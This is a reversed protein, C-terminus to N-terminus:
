EKGEQAEPKPAAALKEALAVSFRQVLEATRPHLAPVAETLLERLAKESM